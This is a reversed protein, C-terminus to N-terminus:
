TRQQPSSRSSFPTVHPLVRLVFSNGCPIVPVIFLTAKPVTTETICQQQQQQQQQQHKDARARRKLYCRFIIVLAPILGFALVVILVVLHTKSVAMTGSNNASAPTIAPAATSIAAATALTQHQKLSITLLTSPSLSTSALPSATTITAM